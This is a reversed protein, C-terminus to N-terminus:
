EGSKVNLGSRNWQKDGDTCHNTCKKTFLPIASKKRRLKAIEEKEIRQLALMQSVQHALAAGDKCHFATMQKSCM